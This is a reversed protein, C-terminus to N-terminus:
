VLMQLTLKLDIEQVRLLSPAVCSWIGWVVGVSVRSDLDSTAVTLVPCGTMELPVMAAM